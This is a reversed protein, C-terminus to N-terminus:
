VGSARTALYAFVDAMYDENSYLVAWAEESKCIEQARNVMGARICSKLWYENPAANRYVWACPRNWVVTSKILALRNGARISM